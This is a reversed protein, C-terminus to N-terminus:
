IQGLNSGQVNACSEPTQIGRSGASNQIAPVLGCFRSPPHVHPLLIIPVALFGIPCPDLIAPHCSCTSLASNPTLNLAAIHLIRFERRILEELVIKYGQPRCFNLKGYAERGILGTLSFSRWVSVPHHMTCRAIEPHRCLSHLCRRTFSPPPVSISSQHRNSFM